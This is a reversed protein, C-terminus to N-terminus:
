AGQEYRRMRRARAPIAKSETGPTANTLSASYAVRPFYNARVDANPDANLTKSASQPQEFWAGTAAVAVDVYNTAAGSWDTGELSAVDADALVQSVRRAASPLTLTTGGPDAITDNPEVGVQRSVSKAPLFSADLGECTEIFKVTCSTNGVFTFRTYGPKNLYAHLTVGSESLDSGFQDATGFIDVFAASHWGSQAGADGSISRAGISPGIVYNVTDVEFHMGKHDHGLLVCTVGHRRMLAHFAVLEPPTEVSHGAWYAANHLKAIACRGYWENANLDDYAGGPLHHLVVIKWRAAAHAALMNDLFTFLPGLTWDPGTMQEEGRLGLNSATFPDVGIFVAQGWRKVWYSKLPDDNNGAADEVYTSMHTPNAYETPHVWTSRPMYGTSSPGYHVAKIAVRGQKQRAYNNQDRQNHGGYEEHNGDVRLRMGCRRYMATFLSDVKRTQDWFAPEIDGTGTPTLSGYYEIDGGTIIFSPTEDREIDSLTLSNCLITRGMTGTSKPTGDADYIADLGFGVTSAPSGGSAPLQGTHSDTAFVVDFNVSDTSLPATTVRMVGGPFRYWTSGDLSWEAVLYYTTHKTLGGHQFTLRKGTVDVSQISNFAYSGNISSAIGTRFYMTTSADHSRTIGLTITSDTVDGIVPNSETTCEAVKARAPLYPDALLESIAWDPLFTDFFAFMRPSSRGTAGAGPNRNLAFLDFYLSRPSALVDVAGGLVDTMSVGNLSLYQTVGDSRVVLTYDADAVLPATNWADTAGLEFGAQLNGSTNIQARFLNATTASAATFVVPRAGPPTIASPAKFRVILTYRTLTKTGSTPSFTAYVDESNGNLLPGESDSEWRTDTNLAWSGAYPNEGRTAGYNAVSTGSGESLLCYNRLHQMFCSLQANRVPNTPKLPM